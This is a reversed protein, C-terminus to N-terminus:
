RSICHVEKIKLETSVRPNSFEDENRFEMKSCFKNKTLIVHHRLMCDGLLIRHTLDELVLTAISPSSEGHLLFIRDSRPLLIKQKNHILTKRCFCKPSAFLNFRNM